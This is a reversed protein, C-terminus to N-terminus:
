LENQLKSFQWSALPHTQTQNIILFNGTFNRQQIKNLHDQQTTKIVFHVDQLHGLKSNCANCARAGHGMGWCHM